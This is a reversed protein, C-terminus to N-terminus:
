IKVLDALQLPERNLLQNFFDGLTHSLIKRTLRNTLHWLNRARIKEIQFQEKLQGIVTEVLRRTSM